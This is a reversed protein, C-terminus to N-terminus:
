SSEDNSIDRFLMDLGMEELLVKEKNPKSLNKLRQEVIEEWLETGREMNDEANNFLELVETSPWTDLDVKSGIAYYWSLKAQEFQQQGLALLGEYFDPKIKLAEEYRKGAKVYEGQAWEYASKIQALISEKPDDEPLSLRKRARSMHV